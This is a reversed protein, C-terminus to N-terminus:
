IDKSKGGLGSAYMVGKLSSLGKHTQNFRPPVVGGKKVGQAGWLALFLVKPHSGAPIGAPDRRSGVPIWRSGAPIGGPDWRSGVPIAGPNGGPNGGPDRRSGAPVGGKGVGPIQCDIKKVWFGHNKEIRAWRWQRM